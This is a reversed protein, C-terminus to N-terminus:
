YHHGYTIHFGDAFDFYLSARTTSELENAGSYTNDTTSVVYDLMLRM